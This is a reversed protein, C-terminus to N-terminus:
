SKKSKYEGVISDIRKKSSTIVTREDVRVTVLKKKRKQELDKMMALAELARERETMSSKNDPKTDKNLPGKRSYYSTPVENRTKSRM